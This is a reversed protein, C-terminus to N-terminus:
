RHLGTVAVQREGALLNRIRCGGAHVARQDRLDAVLVGSNGALAVGTKLRHDARVQLGRHLDAVAVGRDRRLGGACAQGVSRYRRLETRVVNRDSRLLLGQLRRPGTGGSKGKLPATDMGPMRAAQTLPNPNATRNRNTNKARAFANASDSCFTM